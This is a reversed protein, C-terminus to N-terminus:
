ALRRQQRIALWHRATHRVDDSFDRSPHLLWRLMGEDVDAWPKGRFKGITCTEQLVPTSTLAVLEPVTRYDVMRQVLASTVLADPAARHPPMELRAVELHLYYRMVQNTHKPADPWLHRSCQLTCIDRLPLYDAPDFVGASALSQMLLRRDFQANHAVMVVEGDFEPFGRTELYERMTPAMALEADGIHHAARGEPKVPVTPRILSSWLAVPQAVQQLMGEVSWDQIQLTAIALECVQDDEDAGTTETDVVALRM